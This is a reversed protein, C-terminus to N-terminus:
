RTVVFYLKSSYTKGDGRYEPLICLDYYRLFSECNFKAFLDIKKSIHARLGICKRMASGEVIQVRSFIRGYDIKQVIRTILVGVIKVKNASRQICYLEQNDEKYDLIKINFNIQKNPLVIIQYCISEDIAIISTMGCLHFILRGIYSELSVYDDKLNTNKCM